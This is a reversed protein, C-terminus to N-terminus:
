LQGLHRQPGPTAFRVLWPQRLVRRALGHHRRSGAYASCANVDATCTDADADANVHQRGSHGHVHALAHSESSAVADCKGSGGDDFSTNSQSARNRGSGRQKGAGHRRPDGTPRAATRARGSVRRRWRGLRHGYIHRQVAPRILAIDIMANAPWNYGSVVFGENVTTALAVTPGPQAAMSQMLFWGGGIAWSLVVAILLGLIILRRRMSLRALLRNM